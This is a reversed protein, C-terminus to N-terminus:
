EETVREWQWDVATFVLGAHRGLTRPCASFDQCSAFGLSDVIHRAEYLQGVVENLTLQVTYKGPYLWLPPIRVVVQYTGSQNPLAVGSDVNPFHYVPTGNLEKIQISLTISAAVALTLRCVLQLEQSMIVSSTVQGDLARLSASNVWVRPNPQEACFYQDTPIATVRALYENAVVSVDGDSTLSGHELIL